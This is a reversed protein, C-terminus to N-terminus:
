TSVAAERKAQALVYSRKMSILSHDRHGGFVYKEADDVLGAVVPNLHVYLV